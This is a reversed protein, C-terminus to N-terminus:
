NHASPRRWKVADPGTVNTYSCWQPGTGCPSGARAERRGSGRLSAGLRCTRRHLRGMGGRAYGASRPLGNSRALVRVDKATRVSRALTRGKIAQGRALLVLGLFSYRHGSTDRGLTGMALGAVHPVGTFLLNVVTGGRLIFILNWIRSLPDWHPRIPNLPALLRPLDARFAEFDDVAVAFDRDSLPGPDGRARSGTLTVSTVANHATLARTIASPVSDM